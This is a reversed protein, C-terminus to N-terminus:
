MVVWSIGLWAAMGSVGLLLVCIGVVVGSVVRDAAGKLYGHQSGVGTTGRGLFIWLLAAGMSLLVISLFVLLIRSVSWGVVFELGEPQEMRRVLDRDITAEINEDAQPTPVPPAAALRHAWHVFAYRARGLPPKRYHQLIKEESFTDSLGRYALVRPSRPQHLWGYGADAAKSAPGSVIIRRLSRASLVRVPGSLERYCRRLQRFFEADDFNLTRFHRDKEGYSSSRVARFDNTAPIILSTVRRMSHPNCRRISLTLTSEFSPPPTLAASPPNRGFDKRHVREPAFPYPTRVIDAPLSRRPGSTDIPPPIVHVKKSSTSPPSSFAQNRPSRPDHTRLAAPLLSARHAPELPVLMSRDLAEEDRMLAQLTIEHAIAHAALVQDKKSSPVAMQQDDSHEIQASSRPTRGSQPHSARLYQPPSSHDVPLLEDVSGNFSTSPTGAFRIHEEQQVAPALPQYGETDPQETVRRGECQSAFPDSTPASRRKQTTSGRGEVFDVDTAGGGPGMANASEDESTDDFFDTTRHGFDPQSHLSEMARMEPHVSRVPSTLAQTIHPSRRPSDSIRVREDHPHSDM